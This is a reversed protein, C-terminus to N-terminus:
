RAHLFFFFFVHDRGNLTCFIKMLCNYNKYRIKTDKIRMEGVSCHKRLSTDIVEM